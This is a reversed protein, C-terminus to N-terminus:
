QVMVVVASNNDKDSCESNEILYQMSEAWEKPSSAKQLTKIMNDESILEWFGDSCLLFSDGTRINLSECEVKVKADAGLARILKNRGAYNRIESETIEGVFVAMQAVSHDVSQFIVKGDRFQYIRTDGVNIATATFKKLQIWLVAITSMMNRKKHQQRIKTNIIEITKLLKEESHIKEQMSDMITTVAIDSAVKGSQYGGLGDAVVAILEDDVQLTKVSDENNERNGKDSYSYVNFKM